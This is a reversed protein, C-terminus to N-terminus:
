GAKVEQPFKMRWAEFGGDMSYVDTFNKEVFFHAASLSTNGHYCYLILAQDRDAAELFGPLSQENLHAANPIHGQQYSHEDRIDAVQCDQEQMMTHAQEPSLHKFGPM